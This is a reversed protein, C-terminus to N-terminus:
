LLPLFVIAAVDIAVIALLGNFSTASGARRAGFAAAGVFIAALAVAVLPSRPLSALAIVATGLALLLWCLRTARRSGLRVALGGLGAARDSELDPLANALHASIAALAFAVVMWIPPMEGDLGLSLFLPASGFAVAYPLWSWVTRSLRLNYLWAMALALVHFSGGVLGAVLWSLVVAAALAGIAGIWLGRPTVDRAVTPKGTRGAQADIRSDHADNCWGVSLQGLLITLAVLALDGGRWGLSWAFATMILTVGVTPATHCAVAYGRLRRM